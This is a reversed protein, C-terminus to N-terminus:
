FGLKFIIFRGDNYIEETNKFKEVRFSPDSRTDKIVYTVYYKKLLKTIHPRVEKENVKTLEAIERDKQFALESLTLSSTTPICRKFMMFRLKKCLEVKWRLDDFRRFYSLGLATSNNDLFEPTIDNFYQSVLYREQVEKKSNWYQYALDPPELSYNKSFITIFSAIGPSAWIVAPDKDYDDLWAIPKAYDQVAIIEDRSRQFPQFLSRKHHKVVPFISLLLLLLIVLKRGWVQQKFYGGSFIFYSIVATSISLWFFLERGLHDGIAGDRGSIIPSFALIFIALGHAFFLGRALNFKRDERIKPMLRAVTHWLFLNIIVWRALEFSVKSPLHTKISGINRLFEPFSPDIIIKYLYFLVPFAIVAVLVLVQLESKISQWKRKILFWAFYIGLILFTIQWTYPYVYLTGAVGIALLMRNKRSQKELWVSLTYLFFMFFPLVTQWVVPRIMAGYVSLYVFPILYFGWNGTIELRRLFLWLFIVLVINWFISNFILTAMLSLGLKLPVAAIYDAGILAPNFEDSREIFFPNNGFPFLDTGKIMQVIYFESDGVYGAPIVGQWHYGAANTIYILPLVAMLATVAFLIVLVIVQKKSVVM